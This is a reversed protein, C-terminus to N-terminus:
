RQTSHIASLLKCRAMTWPLRCCSYQFAVKTSIKGRAETPITYKHLDVFSWGLATALRQLFVDEALGRERAIFALLPEQSGNDVAARWADRWDDFQGPTAEVISAVLNKVSSFGM